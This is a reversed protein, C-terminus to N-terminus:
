QFLEQQVTNVPHPTPVPAAAETAKATPATKRSRAARKSKRAPKATDREVAIRALLAAAPEDTPDQGTLRGELATRLLSVRLQHAQRDSRRLVSRVRQVEESQSEAQEVISRQEDLSPLPIPLEALRSANLNFQGASSAAVREIHRRWIGSQTVLRVWRPDVVELNLRFRILYSAFAVDTDEEAVGVRGILSPSGNTRVFLVDGSRVFYDSLDVAPDEAFKMDEPDIGGNQVNPIRLVPSGSGEYSSKVSTGYGRDVALDGLSVTPWRSSEVFGPISIPDTAKWKRGASDKTSRRVEDLALPRAFESRSDADAVARSDLLKGLAEARRTAAEVSRAAADLRSLQEELAEVIRHQEALPPVAVGVDEFEGRTVHVMGSGQTRSQIVQMKHQLLYRFFKQDVYPKVKFIHQNLAGEPGTWEYVGLTAAWSLLLDGTKVTHRDELEGDFYNFASNSGTLNQIRIIPWGSKSWEAKRFGRGNVYEALDGLTSPAWGEPLEGMGM